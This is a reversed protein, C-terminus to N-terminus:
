GRAPAPPSYLLDGAERLARNGPRGRMPRMKVRRGIRRPFSRPDNVRLGNDQGKVGPGDFAGAVAPWNRSV